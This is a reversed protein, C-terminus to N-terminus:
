KEVNLRIVFCRNFAEYELAVGFDDGVISFLKRVACIQADLWEIDQRRITDDDRSNLEHREDELGSIYTLVKMCATCHEQTIRITKM